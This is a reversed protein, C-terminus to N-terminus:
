KKNIVEKKWFFIIHQKENFFKNKTYNESKM